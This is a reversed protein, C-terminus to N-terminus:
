RVIKHKFFQEQFHLENEIEEDAYNHDNLSVVLKDEDDDERQIVAIVIGQAQKLPKNCGLLYADQYEGDPAVMEKIYGYNIPYVYSYHRYGVPRDVIVTIKKGLLAVVKEQYNMLEMDCSNNPM